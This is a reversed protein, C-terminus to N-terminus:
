TTRPLNGFLAIQRSSGTFCLGQSSDQDDESSPPFFDLDDIEPSLSDPPAAVKFGFYECFKWPQNTDFSDRVRSCVVSDDRCFPLKDRADVQPDVYEESCAYFLDTCFAPCISGDAQGTSIDADCKSCMLRSLSEKCRQSMEPSAARIGSRMKQLIPIVDNQNCCTRGNHETCYMLEVQMNMLESLGYQNALCQKPPESGGASALEGVLSVLLLIVKM